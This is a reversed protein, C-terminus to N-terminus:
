WNVIVMKEPTFSPINKNKHRECTREIKTHVALVKRTQANRIQENRIKGTELQGRFLFPRIEIGRARWLSEIGSM